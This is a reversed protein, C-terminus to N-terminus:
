LRRAYWFIRRGSASIQHERVISAHRELERRFVELTYDPFLDDRFRMLEGVQPDNKPVFEILGAPALAVLGTVVERIPINQGLALHHVIALALLANSQARAAFSQREANQWGQGPSPNAIDVFLPLFELRKAAAREFAVDLAARDTDVGVARTAGNELAVISYEGANCGVDLIEMPRVAACFEGVESRKAMRAEVVYNNETEYDRWTASRHMTRPHMQEIMLELHRLLGMLRAKPMPTIQPALRKRAAFRDYLAPAVVHLVHSPKLLRYAPVLRLVEDSSIGHLASRYHPAFSVGTACELILPNLFQQRFQHYGAFRSGEKYPIISLVDIHVARGRRFQMNFASADSLTFGRRLAEQHLRLHALAAAKLAAFPWEYPYSIIPLRPHSLVHKVEEDPDDMLSAASPDSPDALTTQILYGRAILEQVIGTRWIEEIWANSKVTRYARESGVHVQGSPDRFSGPDRVPRDLKMM